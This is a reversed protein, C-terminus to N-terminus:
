DTIVIVNVQDRDRPYFIRCLDATWVVAWGAPSPNRFLEALYKAQTLAAGMGDLHNGFGRERRKDSVIAQKSRRQCKRWEKNNDAVYPIVTIELVFGVIRPPLKRFGNRSANICSTLTPDRVVPSPM